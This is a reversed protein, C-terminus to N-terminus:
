KTILSISKLKQQAWWLGMRIHGTIDCTPNPKV